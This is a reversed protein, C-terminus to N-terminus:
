LEDEIEADIDEEIEVEVDFDIGEPEPLGEAEEEEYCCGGMMDKGKEVLKLTEDKIDDITERGPKPALILGAVLGMATGIFLGEMFKMGNTRKRYRELEEYKRKHMNLMHVGGKNETYKTKVVLCPDVFM